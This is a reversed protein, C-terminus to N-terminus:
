SQAVMNNTNWKKYKHMVTQHTEGEGRRAQKMAVKVDAKVTEPLEDWFDTENDAELMAHVMKVVREDATEIYKKVAKRLTPVSNM